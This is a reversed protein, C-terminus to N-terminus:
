VSVYTQTTSAGGKRHFGFFMEDGCQSLWPIESDLFEDLETNEPLELEKGFDRVMYLGQSRTPGTQPRQPHRAEQPRCRAGTVQSIDVPTQLDWAVRTGNSDLSLVRMSMTGWVCSGGETTPTLSARSPEKTM